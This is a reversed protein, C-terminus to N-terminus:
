ASMDEKARIGQFSCSRPVDYGGVDIYSFRAYEQGELKDRNEWLWVKMEATFGTGIEFPKPWQSLDQVVLLGARERAVKGEKKSSRKAYGREDKLKENTNEFEQVVELILAEADKWPKVKLMGQEKLTSRNQKYAAKLCRLILGEYGLRLAEAFMARVEAACTVLRQATIQVWSPLNNRGRLSEWREKFGGPHLFDDFVFYRVDPEGGHSMIASTSARFNIQGDDGLVGLEGDLGAGLMEEMMARVHRNPIPKMSRTMALASPGDDNAPVMLARIGDMKFSAWLPYTLDDLCDDASVALMPRRLPALM